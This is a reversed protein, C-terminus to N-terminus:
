WVDVGAAELEAANQAVLTEQEIDSAQFALLEPAFAVCTHLINNVEVIDAVTLSSIGMAEAYVTFVLTRPGAGGPHPQNILQVGGGWWRRTPRRLVWDLYEQYTIDATEAFQQLFIIHYAAENMNQFYCDELLPATRAVGDIPALFKIWGMDDALAQYQAENALVTLHSGVDGADGLDGGDFGQGADAGGADPGPGADLGGAGGDDGGDVVGADPGAGADTGPAPGCGVLLGAWCAGCLWMGRMSM